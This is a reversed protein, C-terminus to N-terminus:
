QPTTDTVTYNALFGENTDKTVVVAVSYAASTYLLASSELRDYHEGNRPRGGLAHLKKQRQIAPALDPVARALLRTIDHLKERHAPEFAQALRAMLLHLALTDMRMDRGYQSAVDNGYSARKRETDTYAVKEHAALAVELERYLAFAERPGVSTPDELYRTIRARDVGRGLSLGLEAAAVLVSARDFDNLREIEALISSVHRTVRGRRARLMLWHIM